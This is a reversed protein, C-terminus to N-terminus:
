VRVREEAMSALNRVGRRSTAKAGLFLLPEVPPVRFLAPPLDTRVCTITYRIRTGGDETPQLEYRHRWRSTAPGGKPPRLVGDTEFVLLRGPEAETVHSRDSWRGGLEVGESTWVDGVGIARDPGDIAVLRAHKTQRRGGWELHTSVDALVDWVARPPAASRAVATLERGQFRRVGVEVDRM